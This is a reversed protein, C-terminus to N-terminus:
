IDKLIESLSTQFAQAIKEVMPLSISKVGREVDSLYARDIKFEIAMHMQTWGRQQRLHRLRKGFRRMVAEHDPSNAGIPM